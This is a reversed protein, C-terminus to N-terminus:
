ASVDKGAARLLQYIILALCAAFGGLLGWLLELLALHHKCVKLLHV